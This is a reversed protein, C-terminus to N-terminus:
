FTCRSRKRPSPKQISSPMTFDELIDTVIEKADFWKDRAASTVSLSLGARKDIHQKYVDARRGKHAVGTNDVMEECGSFTHDVSGKHHTTERTESDSDDSGESVGNDKEDEKSYQVNVMDDHSDEPDMKPCLSGLEDGINDHEQLMSKKDTSVTKSHGHKSRKHSKNATSMNSAFADREEEVARSLQLAIDDKGAQKLIDFAVETLEKETMVYWTKSHKKAKLSDTSDQMHTVSGHISTKKMMWNPLDRSSISSKSKDGALDHSKLASSQSTKMDDTELKSHNKKPSMRSGQDSIKTAHEEYLKQYSLVCDKTVAYMCELKGCPLNRVIRGNTFAELEDVFPIRSETGHQSPVIKMDTLPAPIAPTNVSLSSTVMAPHEMVKSVKLHRVGAHEAMNAHDATQFLYLTRRSHLNLGHRGQLFALVGPRPPLVFEGGVIDEGVTIVYVPCSQFKRCIASGVRDLHTQMQVKTIEGTRLQRGDCVLIIRGCTYARYWIEMVMAVTSCLKDDAYCGSVCEWQLFLAPVEFKYNSLAYLCICREFLQCGETSDPKQVKANKYNVEADTEDSFWDALTGTSSEAGELGGIAGSAAHQLERSWSVQWLGHRPLVSLQAITVDAIKKKFIRIYSVRTKRSGHGDLIAVKHGKKLLAIVHWVIDRLGYAPNTAYLKAPYVAMHTNILEKTYIITQGKKSHLISQHKKKLMRIM